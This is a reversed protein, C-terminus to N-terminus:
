PAVALIHTVVAIVQVTANKDHDVLVVPNENKFDPSNSATFLRAGRADPQYRKLTYEYLDGRKRQAVVLKGAAKSALAGADRAYEWVPVCLCFSGDPAYQNVSDGIVRIWFQAVGHDVLDAAVPLTEAAHADMDFSERWVGAQVAGRIPLAANNTGGNEGFLLQSATTNFAAAYAIAQPGSIKRRGAEHDRLNQPHFRCQRAAESASDYGAALRAARLREGVLNM